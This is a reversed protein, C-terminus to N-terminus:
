RMQLRLSHNTRNTRHHLCLNILAAILHSSCIVRDSVKSDKGVSVTLLRTDDDDLFKDVVKADRELASRIDATATASASGSKSGIVDAIATVLYDRRADSMDAKRWLVPLLDV